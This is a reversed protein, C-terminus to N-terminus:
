CIKVAMHIAAVGGMVRRVSVMKFGAAEMEEAFVEPSPFREISEALYRYSASDGMIVEGFFPLLRKQYFAVFPKVLSPIDQSFELCAFIGRTKLVRWAEKLAYSRHTM